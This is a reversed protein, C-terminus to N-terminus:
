PQRAGALLRHIRAAYTASQRCAAQTAPDSADAAAATLRAALNQSLEAVAIAVHVWDQGAHLDDGSPRPRAAPPLAPAGAISDRGSAAASAALVFAPFGHGVREQHHRLVARAHEFADCAADLIAPLGCAHDLRAQAAAIANM